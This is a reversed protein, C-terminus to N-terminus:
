SSHRRWKKEKELAELVSHAILRQLPEYDDHHDVQCLTQIYEAKNDGEYKVRSGPLGFRRLIVNTMLRAVRGNGNVFPHISTLGHQVWAALEIVQLFWKQQDSKSRPKPRTPIVALKTDLNRWFEYMRDQVLRGPPPDVCKLKVVDEGAKRFRGAIEPIAFQFIERHIALITDLTIKSADEGIKNALAIAKWFGAAELDELETQHRPRKFHRAM